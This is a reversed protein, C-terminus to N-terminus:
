FNPYNAMGSFNVLYQRVWHIEFNWPLKSIWQTLCYKIFIIKNWIISRYADSIVTFSLLLKDM